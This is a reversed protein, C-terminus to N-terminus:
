RGVEGRRVRGDKLRWAAVADGGLALEISVEDTRDANVIWEFRTEEGPDLGRLLNVRQGAQVREVPVSVRVSHPPVHNSGRAPRMVNPLRGRNTVTTSIRWLGPALEEAKPESLVIDPRRGALGGLFGALRGGTALVEELPPNERFGPVWGGVEVDPLQPHQVRTWPVFGKGGRVEDSYRLWAASEPDAPKPPAPAGEPPKPPEPLDPRGWLTSAFAPIGRNVNLWAVLSGATPSSSSRKQGMTDCWEKAVAAYPELDKEHIMAPLGTATVEKPDPLKVVTDHRGLVLVAFINRHRQVFNAIARSEPVILPYSGSEDEFEPWDHPFNRDPDSGGPWDESIRGDGDRDM